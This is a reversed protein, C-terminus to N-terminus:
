IEATRWLIMASVENGLAADVSRHLGLRTVRDDRPHFPRPGPGLIAELADIAPKWLNAWNRSPGILFSVQLEVPGEPAEDVHALQGAIEKKWASLSASTRTRVVASSWGATLLSAVTSPMAAGVSLTSLGIRKEAWASTFRQSGLRQVLPFLYNDLDRGGELLNNGAPLGVTLRLALDSHARYDILSEVSDLYETLRIQSPHTKVDWSALRPPIPLEIQEDTPLQFVVHRELDVV